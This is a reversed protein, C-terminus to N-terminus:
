APLSSSPRARSSAMLDPTLAGSCARNVLSKRASPRRYKRMTTKAPHTQGSVKLSHFFTPFLYPDYRRLHSIRRGAAESHCVFLHTDDQVYHLIEGTLCHAQLLALAEGALPLHTKACRFAPPTTRGVAGLGGCGGDKAGRNLPATVAKRRSQPTTRM